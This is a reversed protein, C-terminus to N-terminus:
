GAFEFQICKRLTQIEMHKWISLGRLRFCEFSQRAVNMGKGYIKGNGGGDFWRGGHVCLQLM